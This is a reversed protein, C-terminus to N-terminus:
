QESQMKKLFEEAEGVDDFYMYQTSPYSCGDEAHMVVVRDDNTRRFFINDSGVTFTQSEDLSNFKIRSM